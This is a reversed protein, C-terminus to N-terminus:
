FVWQVSLSIERSPKSSRLEYRRLPSNARNDEYVHRQRHNEARLLNDAELRLTVNNFPQMEVFLELDLDEESEQWYDLDYYPRAAELRTELGYSLNRWNLDQRFALSWEYEARFNFERKDGTFPDTVETKQLELGLDVVAGTLNFRDLRLSGSFALEASYGDGMNGPATLTEIGDEGLVQLPIRGIYDSVDEYLATVSFVGMDNLLQREYVIEYQWAQEPELEPNGANIVDFRNDDNTFSAVFSGFELQSISREIRGRWQVQENVDYRLALRPKPYYFDRSHAVDNGHQQLESFELDLSAELLLQSTAQWSYSTFAEYRVEEITSEDNFLAVDVLVGDDNMQLATEEEVTNIAVEMGSEFLHNEALSWQYSSRLIREIDKSSERQVRRLESAASDSLFSFRGKAQSFSHSYIFLTTLTDGSAFVHQYDGGLEWERESEVEYNLRSNDLIESGGVYSFETTTESGREDAYLANLNLVHGNTLTYSMNSILGFADSRSGSHEIQSELLQKHPSFFRDRAEPFGREVEGDVSFLYNLAGLDGNYSVEVDGGPSGESYHDASATMSGYGAKPTETLVVNVVRGQSRVDLGPVAGRIVEIQLVQRAQIRDLVSGVDNSKGSVRNGNILVQDGDSGFGRQGEGGSNLIDQLGPVRDLQDSATVVNFQSFYDATYIVRNGGDRVIVSMATNADVSGPQALASSLGTTMGMVGALASWQWRKNHIYRTM